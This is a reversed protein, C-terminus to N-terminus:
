LRRTAVIKPPRMNRFSAVRYCDLLSLLVVDPFVWSNIDVKVIWDQLARIDRRPKARNRRICVSPGRGEEERASPSSRPEGLVLIRFFARQKARRSRSSQINGPFSPSIFFLSLVLISLASYLLRSLSRFSVTNARKPTAALIDSFTPHSSARFPPFAYSAEDPKTLRACKPSTGKKRKRWEDKESIRKGEPAACACMSCVCVCMCVSIGRWVMGTCPPGRARARM